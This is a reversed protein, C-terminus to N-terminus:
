IYIGSTRNRQSTGCTVRSHQAPTSWRWHKADRHLSSALCPGRDESLPALAQMMKGKESGVGKLSRGKVGGSLFRTINPYRLTLFSSVQSPASFVKEWGLTTLLPSFITLSIIFILCFCISRGILLWNLFHSPSHLNRPSCIQSFKREEGEGESFSLKRHTSVASSSLDMYSRLKTREHKRDNRENELKAKKYYFFLFEFLHLIQWCKNM